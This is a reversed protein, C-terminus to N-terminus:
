RVVERLIQFAEAAEAGCESGRLRAHHVLADLSRPHPFERLEGTYCALADRKKSLTASIDIWANPVFREAPLGWESSSIVEGAWVRRIRSGPVPRTATMVARAVVGHDLNIDGPHHTFVTDAGTDGVFAEVRKIVDLRAVSDMRNDPFDAFAISRCGLTTVVAREAEARLRAFQDSSAKGRAELGTALILVHVPVNAAALRALTGGAALVEDDPHAFVAAVSQTDIM